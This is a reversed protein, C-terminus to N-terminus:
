KIKYIESRCHLFYNIFIQCALFIPLLRTPCHVELMNLCKIINEIAKKKKAFIPIFLTRGIIILISSQQSNNSVQKAIITCQGLLFSGPVLKQIKGERATKKFKSM